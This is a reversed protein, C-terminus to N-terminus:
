VKKTYIIRANDISFYPIKYQREGRMNPVFVETKQGPRLSDEVLQVGNKFKQVWKYVQTKSM